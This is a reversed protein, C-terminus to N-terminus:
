LNRKKLYREEKKNNTYDLDIIKIKSFVPVQFEEVDGVTVEQEIKDLLLEDEDLLKFRELKYFKYNPTDIVKELLKVGNGNLQRKNLIRVLKIVTYKDGKKIWDKDPVEKPKNSDDICMVRINLM